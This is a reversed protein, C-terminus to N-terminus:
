VPPQDLEIWVGDVKEFWRIGSPPSAFGLERGEIDNLFTLEVITGTPDKPNPIINGGSIVKFATGEINIWASTDSNNKVFDDVEEKGLPINAQPTSIFSNIINENTIEAEKGASILNILVQRSEERDLETTPERKGIEEETLVGATIAADVNESSFKSTNGKTGHYWELWTTDPNAKKFTDWASTLAESMASIDASNIVGDKNIDALPEDGAYRDGDPLLNGDPDYMMPWSLYLSQNRAADNWPPVIKEFDVTIQGTTEDRTFNGGIIVQSIWDRTIQTFPEESFWKTLDSNEGIEKRMQDMLQDTTVGGADKRIDFFRKMALFDRREEDTDIDALSTIGTTLSLADLIEQTKDPDLINVAGDFKISIQASTDNEFLQSGLALVIDFNPETQIALLRMEDEIGIKKNTVATTNTFDILGVAAAADEPNDYGFMEPFERAIRLIEAKRQEPDLIQEALAMQSEFATQRAPDAMLWASEDFEVQPFAQQILNKTPLYVGLTQALTAEATIRDIEFERAFAETDLPLGGSMISFVTEMGATDGLEAFTSFLQGLNQFEVQREANIQQRVRLGLDVGLINMDLIRQASETNLGAIIQSFQKGQNRAMMFLMATGAPQGELGQQKIQFNLANTLQLNQPGIASIFQNLQREYVPDPTNPDAVESIFSLSQKTLDSADEFLGTREQEIEKQKQEAAERSALDTKSKDAQAPTDFIKQEGGKDVGIFGAEKAVEPEELVMPVTPAAIQSTTQVIDPEEGLPVPAITATTEVIPEDPPPRQLLEATGRETETFRTQGEEEQTTEEVPVGGPVGGPVFRERAEEEIGTPIPTIPKVFTHFSM